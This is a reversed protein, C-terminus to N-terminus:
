QQRTCRHYTRCQFSQVAEWAGLVLHDTVCRGLKLEKAFAQFDEEGQGPGGAAQLLRSVTGGEPLSNHMEFALTQVRCDAGREDWEARMGISMLRDGQSVGAAAAPGGERVAVVELEVLDETGSCPVGNVLKNVYRPRCIEHVQVDNQWAFDVPYEVLVCRPGPSSKIAHWEQVLQLLHSLSVRLYNRRRKREERQDPSLTDLALRAARRAKLLESIKKCAEKSFVMQLALRVSSEDLGQVLQLLTRQFSAAPQVEKAITGTPVEKARMTAARVEKATATTAIKWADSIHESARQARQTREVLKRFAPQPRRCQDSFALRGTAKFGSSLKTSAASVAADATDATNGPERMFARAFQSYSLRVGAAAATPLGAEHVATEWLATLVELPLTMDLRLLLDDLDDLGATGAKDKSAKATVSRFLEPATFDALLHRLADLLASGSRSRLLLQGEQQILRQPIRKLARKLFPLRSMSSRKPGREASANRAPAYPVGSPPPGPWTTALPAVLTQELAQSALANGWTMAALDEKLAELKPEAVADQILSPMSSAAAGESSVQSPKSPAVHAADDQIGPQVAAADQTLVEPADQILLDMAADDQFTKLALVPPPSSSIELGVDVPGNFPVHWGSEPPEARPDPHFAIVADGGVSTGFWWGSLSPESWCYLCIQPAEEADSVKAWTPKGHNSGSCRYHGSLLATAEPDSCGFVYLDPVNPAEEVEPEKPEDEDIWQALWDPGPAAEGETLAALLSEACRPLLATFAAEGEAALRQKAERRMEPPWFSRLVEQDVHVGTRSAHVMLCGLVVPLPNGTGPMRQWLEHGRAPAERLAELERRLGEM